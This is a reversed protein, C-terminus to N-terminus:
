LEDFGLDQCSSCGLSLNKPFETETIAEGITRNRNFDVTEIMPKLNGIGDLIIM